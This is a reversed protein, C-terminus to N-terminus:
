DENKNGEWIEKIKDNSICVMSGYDDAGGDITAVVYKSLAEEVAMLCSSCGDGDWLEGGNMLELVDARIDDETYDDPDAFEAFNISSIEFNEPLVIVYSSSSSNSVFGMRIKM